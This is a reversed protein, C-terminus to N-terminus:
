EAKNVNVDIKSPINIQPTGLQTNKIAPLGYVFFLYAVVVLAILGLIMGMPGGSNDSAPPNNVITAM